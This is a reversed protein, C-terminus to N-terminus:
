PHRVQGAPDFVPRLRFPWVGSKVIARGIDCRIQNPKGRWEIVQDLARIVTDVTVFVGNRYM